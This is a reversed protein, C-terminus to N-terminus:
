VKISARAKSAELKTTLRGSRLEFEFGDNVTIGHQNM